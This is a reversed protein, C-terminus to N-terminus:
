RNSNKGATKCLAKNGSSPLYGQESFSRNGIAFGVARDMGIRQGFSASGLTLKNEMGGRGLLRSLIGRLLERKSGGFGPSKEREEEPPSPQPSSATEHGSVPLNMSL